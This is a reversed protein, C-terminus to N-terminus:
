KPPPVLTAVLRPVQKKWAPRIAIGFFQESFARFFSASMLLSAALKPDVRKHIRGLAQEAAIYNELVKMSLHPGKDQRALSARYANHLAPEAFLGAVVPTARQHFRFIANLVAALNAQPSGYGVRKPLDDLPGLMEPLLEELMALLLELRGKFHVYLAGDSCGVLRSIRRTTVGSLGRSLMLKKAAELIDKRRNIRSTTPKNKVM